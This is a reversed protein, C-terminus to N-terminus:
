ECSGACKGSVLGATAGAPVVVYGRMRGSSRDGTEAAIEMARRSKERPGCCCRTTPHRLLEHWRFGFSVADQRLSGNQTQHRTRTHPPHLEHGRVVWDLLALAATSFPNPRFIVAIGGDVATLRAASRGIAGTDRTDLM